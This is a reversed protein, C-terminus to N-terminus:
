KAIYIWGQKDISGDNGLDIQYFYSGIAVISGTNKYEGNWDNQYDKSFYVEAGTSNLVRVSSNPHNILNNIFWTDNKGDENPSFGEAVNIEVLDCADGIGDHDIDAQNQNYTTPCNDNVDLIGDFDHDENYIEITFNKTIAGLSNTATVTYSIATTEVTPRGSIVGTSTNFSMGTSLSPNISFTSVPNSTVTPVVAVMVINIPLRLNGAYALATPIGQIEIRITKSSFGYSNTASVTYVTASQISTPTGSIIGTASNLQLGGPLAPNVTYVLNGLGEDVSPVLSTIATNTIFINPTSYNLKSPASPILISYEATTKNFIINYVGATPVTIPNADVVATGSPFDTGGWNYPLTWAHDGRFKLAGPILSVGDLTYIIGNSTTMDTDTVWAGPTADGFISITQFTFSYVGTTKNFAINYIGATPITIGNADVVATGSPFNTGGWNYPLTWAHDGRFKLAGQVLSVGNITYHIGDTTSMDTDTNWGGPTADGILGVIPYVIQPTTFSYAGTTKNFTINYIGTTPITIPSADVVATGSPFATGGWNYPLTWAHDGRFKLAGQVLSVGNLTYITGNTTTMDTDTVWAGPTADGFISIVQYNVPPITISYVGTTKNFTINYIGATPVPIPNADVVATGAPFDTGGWNYPLTWAHNGRFKLAGPILSVGNLTYNTGDTTTMDTDTVWAGPTADGFISITQFSFSYVGTTKNFTIDYNGATPVTIPSADVIATGSPFNTGGWNYPLTWAHDGRFKLAGSVLNVGKLTYTTGNTTTMDTDTVWAGPTADGFISIVQFSVPSVAFSYVGTTINFTIDYNGATPITIGNADVVATGSPFATGGWNYPLTWEHNGRFKLAGPILAVGSLTYTTGDTTTMDTDTTWSGPTADGFISITLFASNQKEESILPPKKANALSITLLCIIFFLLKKKM